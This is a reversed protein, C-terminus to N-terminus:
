PKITVPCGLENAVSIIKADARDSSNLEKLAIQKGSQTVTGAASRTAVRTTQNGIGSPVVKSTVVATAVNAGLRSFFSKTGSNSQAQKQFAEVNDYFDLCVPDTAQRTKGSYQAIQQANIGETLETQSPVSACAALSLAAASLIFTSTLSRM